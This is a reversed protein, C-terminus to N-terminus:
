FLGQQNAPADFNQAQMDMSKRIIQRKVEARRQKDNPLSLLISLVDQLEKDNESITLKITITKADEPFNLPM